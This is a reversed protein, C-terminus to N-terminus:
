KFKPGFIKKPPTGGPCVAGWFGPPGWILLFFGGERRWNGSVGRGGGGKFFCLVQPFGRLANKPPNLPPFFVVPRKKGFFVLFNVKKLFFPTPACITKQGKPYVTKQGNLTKLFFFFPLFM